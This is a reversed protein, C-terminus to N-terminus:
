ESGVSLLKDIHCLEKEKNLGVVKVLAKLILEDKENQITQSFHALCGRQRKISTEILLENDLYAPKLYDVSLNSIAFWYGKDNLRYLSIGEERLWETRARELYSIYKAHYVVGFMDTDEVYVRCKTHHKSLTSM